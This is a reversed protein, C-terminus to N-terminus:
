TEQCTCGSGDLSQVNADAGQVTIGGVPPYKGGPSANEGGKRLSPTGGLWQTTCWPHYWLIPHHCVLHSMMSCGEQCMHWHRPASPFWKLHLPIFRHRHRIGVGHLTYQHWHAVGQHSCKGFSVKKSPHVEFPMGILHLWGLLPATQLQRVATPAQSM